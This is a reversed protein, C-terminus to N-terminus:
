TVQCRARARALRAESQYLSNVAHNLVAKTAVVVIVTREGVPPVTLRHATPTRHDVLAESLNGSGAM